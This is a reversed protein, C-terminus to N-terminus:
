PEPPTFSRVRRQRRGEVGAKLCNLLADAGGPAEISHEYCVPSEQYHVEVCNMVERISSLAEEAHQRSAAALPKPEEGEFDPLEKHALRRHRRERAFSTKVKATAILPELKNRISNSVLPSLRSITLNARGMSKPPDTLRCLHLLVDDWLIHQLKGFFDPAAENLLDIRESSTGFLARYEKWKLHLYTLENGLAHHLEGLERGMAAISSARVEEPGLYRAM